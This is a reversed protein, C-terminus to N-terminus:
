VLAQALEGVFMALALKAGSILQHNEDCEPDDSMRRELQYLFQAWSLAPAFELYSAAFRPSVRLRLVGADLRSGRIVYGIGLRNGVTLPARAIPHPQSAAIGLAHLDEQLCHAMMLFDNHDEDRWGARLNRLTVYHINLLLGYDERRALDFRLNMRDIMMHDSRTTARLLRHLSGFSRLKRPSESSIPHNGFERPM